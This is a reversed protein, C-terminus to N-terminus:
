HRVESEGRNVRAARTVRIGNVTREVRLGDLTELFAAFSNADYANFVGSVPLARLAPDDIALQLIGHRNLEDAVEGLPKQEFAIMHELWAVAAHVDVPDSQAPM